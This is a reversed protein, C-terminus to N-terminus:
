LHGIVETEYMLWYLLKHLKKIILPDLCVLRALM